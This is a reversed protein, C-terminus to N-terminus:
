DFFDFFDVFRHFFEFIWKCVLFFLQDFVNILNVWFELFWILLNESGFFLKILPLQSEYLQKIFKWANKCLSVVGEVLSEPPSNDVDDM